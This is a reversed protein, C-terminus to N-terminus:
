ARDRSGTSMQRLRLDLSTLVDAGVTKQAWLAWKRHVGVVLVPIEELQLVKAMALRHHGAGQQKHFEGNRDVFVKVEDYWRSSGLQEQTKYGARQMEAFTRRLGNFYKEIDAMTRCGRAQWDDVHGARVFRLIEQFQETEQYSIGDRFLQFITKSYIYRSLYREIDQKDEIDWDGDFVIGCGYGNGLREPGGRPRGGWRIAELPVWYPQRMLRKSVALRRPILRIQASASLGMRHFARNLRLFPYVKAYFDAPLTILRTLADGFATKAAVARRRAFLLSRSRRQGVAKRLTEKNAKSAPFGVM